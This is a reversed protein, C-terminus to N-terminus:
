HKVDQLERVKVELEHIKSKAQMLEGQLTGIQTSLETEVRRAKDLEAAMHAKENVEADRLLECIKKYRSRYKEVDANAKTLAESKANLERITDLLRKRYFSMLQTERLKEAGSAKNILAEAQKDLDDILAEAPDRAVVVSAKKDPPPETTKARSAALQQPPPPSSSVSERSNKL